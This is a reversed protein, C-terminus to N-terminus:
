RTAAKKRPSRRRAAVGLYSTVVAPDGQVDAPPGHAIVRGRDLCYVRDALSMLLRMDHEVIVVACGLEDVVNRLLPGFSEAERQAVGSTPEDLILLRPRSAV